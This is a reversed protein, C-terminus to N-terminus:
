FVPKFTIDQRAWVSNAIRLKVAPDATLSKILQSYQQNFLNLPLPRPLLLNTMENKTQGEAGNYLMALAFEVSAPSLFVNQRQNQAVQQFLSIAFNPSPNVSKTDATIIAEQRPLDGQDASSVACGVSALLCFCFIILPSLRPIQM